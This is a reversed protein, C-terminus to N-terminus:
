VAHCISVLLKDYVQFDGPPLSCSNMKLKFDYMFQVRLTKLQNEVFDALIPTIDM